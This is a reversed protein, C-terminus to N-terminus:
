GIIVSRPMQVSFTIFFITLEAIAQADSRFLTEYHAVATTDVPRIPAGRGHLRAYRTRALDADEAPGGEVAELGLAIVALPWVVDGRVFRFAGVESLLFVAGLGLLM